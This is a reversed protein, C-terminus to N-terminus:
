SSRRRVEGRNFKLIENKVGANRMASKLICSVTFYYDSFGQTNNDLRDLEILEEQLERCRKLVALQTFDHASLYDLANGELEGIAARCQDLENEVRNVYHPDHDLGGIERAMKARRLKDLIKVEKRKYDVFSTM